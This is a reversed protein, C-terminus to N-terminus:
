KPAPLGYTTAEQTFARERLRLWDKLVGLGGVDAPTETFPYFELAQSERIVQKKEETVLAIGRDDLSGGAIIAKAFARHAQAGTLGLAAQVLKEHGLKTLNVKVGSSKSLQELVKALEVATPAPYEVVVAADKLEEPVKAVP